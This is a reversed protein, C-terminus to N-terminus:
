QDSEKRVVLKAGSHEKLFSELDGRVTIEVRLREAVPVDQPVRYRAYSFGYERSGVLPSGGATGESEAMIKRGRFFSTYVKLRREATLRPRASSPVSILTAHNGVYKHTVHLTYVSKDPLLREEALPVYLDDAPFLLSLFPGLGSMVKGQQIPARVMYIGAALLAPLLLVALPLGLVLRKSQVRLALLLFAVFAAVAVWLLLLAIM